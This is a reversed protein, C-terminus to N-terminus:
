YTKEEWLYIIEIKSLDGIYKQSKLQTQM